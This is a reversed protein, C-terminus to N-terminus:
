QSLSRWLRALTSRVPAAEKLAVNAGPSQQGQELADMEAPTLPAGGYWSSTEGKFWSPAREVGTPATPVTSAEPNSAISVPRQPDSRAIRVPAREDAGQSPTSPSVDPEVVTRIVPDSGGSKKPAPESDLFDKDPPPSGDYILNRRRQLYADRLFEYQDLAATQLVTSADLLEARRNVTRTGWMINRVHFPYVYSVLDSYYDVIRGAGDRVTSPGFLPLM